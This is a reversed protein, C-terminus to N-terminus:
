APAGVLDGEGAGGTMTDPLGAFCALSLLAIMAVYAAVAWPTGEGQALRTAALPTLAGGLIGGLNYGFGAGTCRLRPEYLEPVYAGLVGFATIFALLELAAGLAMAPASGTALLWIFPFIGVGAAATGALALPRRGLRDGLLGVFPTAAGKVVVGAMLAGLAVTRDMGLRETAYSLSWTTVTYFVAYGGAVAGATLLVLRWHDRLLEGLPLRALQGREAAAAFDPSEPLAARLWLGGLALVGAAWFPVRWGWDRFQADTLWGSLVLMIGNALVFGVAPGTQPLSAWLGRRGRPAHEATLLVAGGWEGGLGLGQLFRLAILIAPAAAGIRDYTPVFGVAATALGTLMLSAVLVPRRGLRDGFHGFLMSGLPRAVFGVGFTGFAALTGAMASFDPFFLPGLVLAAATGYAFFDYFEIATGAASAAAIRGM